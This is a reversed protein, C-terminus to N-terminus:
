LMVFKLCELRKASQTFNEATSTKFYREKFDPLNYKVEKPIMKAWQPINSFLIRSLYVSSPTLLPAFKM